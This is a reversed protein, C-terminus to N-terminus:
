HSLLTLKIMHMSKYYSIFRGHFRVSFRDVPAFWRAHLRQEDVAIVDGPPMSRNPM